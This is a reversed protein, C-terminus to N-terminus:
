MPIKKRNKIYLYIDQKLVLAIMVLINYSANYFCMAGRFM